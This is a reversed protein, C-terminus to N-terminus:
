QRIYPGLPASTPYGYPDLGVYLMDGFLEYLLYFTVGSQTGSFDGTGSLTSLKIHRSSECVSEFSFDIGGNYTGTDVILLNTTTFYLTETDSGSTSMWAGILDSSPQLSCGALVLLAVAVPLAARIWRTKVM